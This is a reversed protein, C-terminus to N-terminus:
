SRNAKMMKKHEYMRQDALLYTNHEDESEERFAYGYAAHYEWEDDDNDSFEHLRRDLTSLLEDLHQPSTNKTLVVFEDGGLRGSTGDKRFVEDLIRGFNSLLRDGSEHGYTDNVRKLDNVDLSIICYNNTNNELENLIKTMMARNPLKTLVDEYAVRTLIDYETNQNLSDSIIALYNIVNAVEFFLIGDATLEISIHEFLPTNPLINMFQLETVCYAGLLFLLCFFIGAYQMRKNDTITQNRCEAFYGNIISIAIGAIPLFTILYYENLYLINTLHLLIRTFSYILTLIEGIKHLKEHIPTHLLRTLTLSVPLCLYIALDVLFTDYSGDGFMFTIGYYSHAAIGLLIFLLSTLMHDMMKKVFLAFIIAICLFSIGLFILTSGCVLENYYKHIFAQELDQYNGLAIHSPNHFVYYYAKRSSRRLNLGTDSTRDAHMNGPYLKITLTKGAYDQPLSILYNNRGIFTQNRYAKMEYSRYLEGDLYIEFACHRNRYYITPLVLDGYDPLTTSLTITDLDYIPFDLLDKMGNFDTTGLNVYTSQYYASSSDSGLSTDNYSVDWQDDLNEMPYNIQTVKQMSIDTVLTLLITFLILILIQRKNM